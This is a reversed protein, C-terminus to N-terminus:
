EARALHESAMAASYTAIQNEMQAAIALFAPKDQKSIPNAQPLQVTQPNRVRGNVHFEYHCHPGTALGTSGVYGIVQGQTVRTGSHINRAFGNMHGYLTQINHGHQLVLVRGYGGKWGAFVVKGDGTAKIPTGRPAAYDTGKHARITHLIPHRRSLNFPSSIRAFDVPSRRFAKRLSYGDPTFYSAGRDSTEYRIATYTKGQNTFEAALIEGDKVKEGNLRLEQYIVKFSDGERIDQAFDVDWGFINALEMTLNDSLGAKQAAMFLSSDITAEAYSTFPELERTVMKAQFGEGERTILLSETKSMVYEMANLTEDQISFRMEQGPHIKRLNSTDGQAAMVDHVDRPGLGVRKFIHSLTDGSKVHESQWDIAPAAAVSATEGAAPSAPEAPSLAAEARLTSQLAKDVAESKDAAQGMPAELRVTRTATADPTPLLTLIVVMTVSFLAVAILHPVPYRRVVAEQTSSEPM